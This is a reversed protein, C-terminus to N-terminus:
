LDTGSGLKHNDRLRQRLGDLLVCESDALHRRLAVSARSVDKAALAIVVEAHQPVSRELGLNQFEPAALHALKLSLLLGKHWADLRYSGTTSVICSHFRLDWDFAANWDNEAVANAFHGHIAALEHVDIRRGASALSGCEVFQRARYIDAVEDPDLLPIRAGKFSSYEAFGEGALKRLVERVVHRSVNYSATLEEERLPAGARFEGALIRERM